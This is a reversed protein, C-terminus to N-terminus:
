CSNIPKHQTHGMMNLTVRYFVKKNSSCYAFHGIYGQPLGTSSKFIIFNKRLSGHWTLKGHKLVFPTFEIKQDNQNFQKDRNKDIYLLAGKSWDNHNTCIVGNISPCITVDQQRLRAEVKANQVLTKLHHITSQSEQSAYLGSFSPLAICLIIALISISILLELVTLGSHSHYM